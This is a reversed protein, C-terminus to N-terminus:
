NLMKLLTYIGNIFVHFSGLVSCVWSTAKCFLTDSADRIFSMISKIGWISWKNSMSARLIGTVYSSRDASCRLSAVCDHLHFAQRNFGWDTAGMAWYTRLFWFHYDLYICLNQKSEYCWWRKGYSLPMALHHGEGFDLLFEHVQVDERGAELKATM